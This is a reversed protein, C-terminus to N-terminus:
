ARSYSALQFDFEGSDGFLNDYIDMYELLKDKDVDGSRRKNEHFQVDHSPLSIKTLECIRNQWDKEVTVDCTSFFSSSDFFELCSSHYLRRQTVWRTIADAPNLFLSEDNFDFKASSDWVLGMGHDYHLAHKIRSKVWAHESRYNLVFFRKSVM